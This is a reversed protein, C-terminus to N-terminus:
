SPVHLARFGVHQEIFAVYQVHIGGSCATGSTTAHTSEFCHLMAGGFPRRCTEAKRSMIARGRLEAIEALRHETQHASGIVTLNPIAEESVPRPERYFQRHRMPLAPENKLLEYM